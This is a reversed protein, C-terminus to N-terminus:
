SIADHAQMFSALLKVFKNFLELAVHTYIYFKFQAKGYSILCKLLKGYM